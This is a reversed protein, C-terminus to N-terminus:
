VEDDGEVLVVGADGKGHYDYSHHKGHEDKKIPVVNEHRNDFPINNRHHIDHDRVADLGHEAVALLRHVYVWDMGGDNRTAWTEYGSPKTIFTAYEQRRAKGAAEYRDRRPIDHRDMFKRITSGAVDFHDAIKRASWEKEWYLTRLTEEQRYEYESMTIVM